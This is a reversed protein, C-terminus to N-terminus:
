QQKRSPRSRNTISCETQARALRTTYYNVWDTTEEVLAALETDIANQRAQYTAALDALSGSLASRRAAEQQLRAIHAVTIAQIATLKAVADDLAPRRRASDKLEALQGDVAARQQEAETLEVGAEKASTASDAASQRAREADAKAQAGAAQLFDSLAALRAQSARSVEEIAAKVRPDCPLMRAVKSELGKALAEWETNRKQALAQRAALPDAQQAFTPITFLLLLAGWRNTTRPGNDTVFWSGRVVMRRRHQEVVIKL